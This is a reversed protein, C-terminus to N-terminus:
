FLSPARSYSVSASAWSGNPTMFNCLLGTSQIAGPCSQRLLKWRLNAKQKLRSIVAAPEGPGLFGAM